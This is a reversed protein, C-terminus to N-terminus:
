MTHAMYSLREVTETHQGFKKDNVTENKSCFSAFSQIPFSRKIPDWNWEWEKREERKKKKRKNKM